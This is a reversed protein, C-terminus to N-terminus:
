DIKAKRITFNMKAPWLYARSFILQGREAAMFNGFGRGLGSYNEKIIYYLGRVMPYRKKAINAQYPKVFGGDGPLESQISAIKVKELFSLHTQDEPNGIWSVGIFGMANKDKSVYDIVAESGKAAQVNKGLAAGRLVSDIAYRINSTANLGDFVLKFPYPSTGKMLDRIEDMTFVSDQAEPHVIVTLADLAVRDWIPKIKLTDKYFDEEEPTLGRTVIVMRISDVLLDKFCEAETKYQAIIRTNPNTAEYVQIQSDIIPKFSEDVSIYITGNRPDDGTFPEQAAQNSCSALMALTLFISLVRSFFFVKTLVLYLQSFNIKNM